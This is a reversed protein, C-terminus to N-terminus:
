YILVSLRTFNLKKTTVMVYELVSISDLLEYFLPM